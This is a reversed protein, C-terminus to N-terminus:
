GSACATLWLQDWPEDGPSDFIAYRLKRGLDTFLLSQPATEGEVPFAGIQNDEVSYVVGEWVLCAALVEDSPADEPGPPPCGEYIQGLDRSTGMNSSIVGWLNRGDQLEVDFIALTMGTEEWSQLPRFSVRFGTEEHAYIAREPRCALDAFAPAAIGTLALAAAARRIM